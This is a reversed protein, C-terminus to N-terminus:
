PYPHPIPNDGDEQKIGLHGLKQPIKWLRKGGLARFLHGVVLPHFGPILARVVALGLEQVDPTTLDCLLVRHGVNKVRKVLTNLDLLPEGLSLNPISHFDQTERSTSLFDAMSQHSPDSWFNLHDRQTVVNGYDAEPVLRPLENRLRQCYSRTHDLEELAKRAADSPNLSTAAATVLPATGPLYGRLVALLTPVGTDMTINLLTVDYGSREFRQMIDQLFPTLTLPLIRPWSLNAQWTITFCDREIVECIASIAAEACSCHCALGTSIPQAIPTEGSGPLFYYPVYVLAAPVHVIEGSEADLAPAWRVPTHENFPLYPFGPSRYQEDSNIAFEEPEVCRFQADHYSVVPFDEADYIASCYREIAEGVAKALASGRDVAAGGGKEFNRQQTFWEVNSAVAWFHFFDPEGSDRPVEEVQRIIGVRPDVLIDLVGYLRQLSGTSATM